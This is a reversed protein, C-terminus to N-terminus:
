HLIEVKHLSEALDGAQTSKAQHDGGIATAPLPPAHQAAAKLVGPETTAPPSAFRWFVQSRVVVSCGRLWEIPIGFVVVTVM